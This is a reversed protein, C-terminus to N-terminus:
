MKKRSHLRATAYQHLHSRGLWFVLAAFTGAEELFMLYPQRHRPQNAALQIQVYEPSRTLFYAM